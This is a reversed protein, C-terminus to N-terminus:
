GIFRRAKDLIDSRNNLDGRVQYAAQWFAPVLDGWFYLLGAADM